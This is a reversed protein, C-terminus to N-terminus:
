ACNVSEMLLDASVWLSLLLLAVVTVTVGKKWLGYGPMGLHPQGDRNKKGRM